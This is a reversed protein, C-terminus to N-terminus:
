SNKIGYLYFNSYQVFNGAGPTLTISTIGAAGRYLHASANILSNNATASNNESVDIGFYQRSGTSNYNSIYVDWAGFTSATTSAASINQFTDTSNNSGAGLAAGTSSNGYIEFQSYNTGTDGNLKLTIAIQAAATDGRASVVLKLDNYSTPISSFTVSATTGGLTQSSILTHTASAM